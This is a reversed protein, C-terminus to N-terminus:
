PAKKQTLLLVQPLTTTGTTAMITAMEGFDYVFTGLMVDLLGDQDFDGIDMSLWKGPVIEPLYSASFRLGGRNELFVVSKKLDKNKSYQSYLSAAVIDLDGDNDFDRAMANYCEYMPYHFAESFNDAGDNLYIRLGHYPKDVASFDRNDGNAILIDLFGDQDFDAMEFYSSGHVPSFKLITKTEFTGDGLNYYVVLQEYAQAMLAIIDPRGDGNLDQISTMRAGPLYSLIREKEPDFGDFWSLKGSHNGYSCVVVDGKGDMNLDGTAFHVPRQLASLSRGQKEPGLDLSGLTGMKKDSPMLSGINLLLPSENPAFRLHSAPSDMDWIGKIGETNEVAYLKRYDGIYLESTEPDFKLLTVQPLGSEGLTLYEMKFPFNGKELATPVPLPLKKPANDLYYDVIKEWEERTILPKDPYISLAEAIKRDEADMSSLPDNGKIHLGLRMGMNPLVSEKWTHKDLLDPEPFTHCMQCYQLALERGTAANPALPQPAISEYEAEFKQMFM